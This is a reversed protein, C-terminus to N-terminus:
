KRSSNWKIWYCLNHQNYCVHNANRVAIYIIRGKISFSNTNHYIAICSIAFIVFAIIKIITM